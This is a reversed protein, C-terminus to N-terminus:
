IFTVNKLSRGYWVKLKIDFLALTAAVVFDTHSVKMFVARYM